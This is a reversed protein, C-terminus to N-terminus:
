RRRWTGDTLRYEFGGPRRENQDVAKIVAALGRDRDMTGLAAAEGLIRTQLEHRYILKVSFKTLSGAVAFVTILLFAQIVALRVGTSALLRSIRM